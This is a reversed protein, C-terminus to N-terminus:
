GPNRTATDADAQRTTSSYGRTRNSNAPAVTSRTAGTSCDRSRDPIELRHIRTTPVDGSDIRPLSPVPARPLLSTREDVVFWDCNREPEPTGTYKHDSLSEFREPQQSCRIPEPLNEIDYGHELVAYCLYDDSWYHPYREVDFGGIREWLSKRVGFFSTNACLIRADGAAGLVKGTNWPADRVNLAHERDVVGPRRVGSERTRVTFHLRGDIWRTADHAGGWDYHWGVLGIRRTNALREACEDVLGRGIRVDINCNFVFEHRAYKFGLNVGSTHGHAHPAEVLRDIVGGLAMHELYLRLTPSADHHVVILEHRGAKWQAIKEICLQTYRTEVGYTTIVISAPITHDGKYSSQRVLYNEYPAFLPLRAAIARRNNIAIRLEVRCNGASGSSADTDTLYHRAFRARRRKSNRPQPRYVQRGLGDSRRSDPRHEDSRKSCCRIFEM